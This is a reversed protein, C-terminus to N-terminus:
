YCLAAVRGFLLAIPLHSSLVTALHLLRVHPPLLSALELMALWVTSMYRHADPWSDAVLVEKDRNNLFLTSSKRGSSGINDEIRILNDVRFACRSSRPSRTFGVAAGELRYQPHTIFSPHPTCVLLHFNTPPRVEAILNDTMAMPSSKIIASPDAHYLSLVGGHVTAFSAFICSFTLCHVM